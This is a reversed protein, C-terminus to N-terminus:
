ENKMFFDIHAHFYNIYAGMLIIYMNFYLWLLVLIVISLSGYIGTAGGASIYISFFWSFVSWVIASFFAGPVQERFKLKSDPVFSYIVSFLITLVGWVVVFRFHMLFSVFEKLVPLRHLAFEVIEDGLVNLFLSLIVAILMILTYISAMGKVVFFNRKEEVSNIANLGRILAMVGKSASWLVTLIAVSMVGASKLFIEDVISEILPLLAKPVYDEFAQMLNSETLSTYPLITGILILLPVISLFFFFAISSAYASINKKKLESLFLTVKGKNIRM